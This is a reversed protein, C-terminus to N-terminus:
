WTPILTGSEVIVHIGYTMKQEQQESESAGREYQTLRVASFPSVVRSVHCLDTKKPLASIIASEKQLLNHKATSAFQLSM